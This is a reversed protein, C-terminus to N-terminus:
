KWHFISESPCIVGNSWFLSSFYMLLRKVPAPPSGKWQLKNGGERDKVGPWTLPTM